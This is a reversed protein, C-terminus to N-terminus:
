LGSKRLLASPSLRLGAALQILNLITVNGVGRELSAIYNRHFKTLAGLEMQTMGLFKRRERVTEGFRVLVASRNTTATM